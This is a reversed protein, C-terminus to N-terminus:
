FSCSLFLLLLLFVGFLLLKEFKSVHINTTTQQVYTIPGKRLHKSIRDDMSYFTTSTQNQSRFSNIVHTCNLYFIKKQINTYDM